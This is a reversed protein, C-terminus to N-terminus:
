ASVAAQKPPTSPREPHHVLCGDAEALILADDISQRRYYSDGRIKSRRIPKLREPYAALLEKWFPEGGVYRTALKEKLVAPWTTILIRDEDM